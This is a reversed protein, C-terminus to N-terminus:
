DHRRYRGSGLAKAPAAKAVKAEDASGLEITEEETL